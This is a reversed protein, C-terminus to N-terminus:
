TTSLRHQLASKLVKKGELDKGTDNRDDAYDAHEADDDDRASVDAQKANSPGGMKVPLRVPSRARTHEVQIQTGQQQVAEPAELRAGSALGSAVYVQSSCIKDSTNM